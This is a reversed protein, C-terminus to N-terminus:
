TENVCVWKAATAITTSSAYALYGNIRINPNLTDALKRRVNPGGRALKAIEPFISVGYRRVRCWKIGEGGELWGYERYIRDRHPDSWWPQSGGGEKEESRGAEGAGGAGLFM